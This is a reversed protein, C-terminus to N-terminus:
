AAVERAGGAVVDIIKDAISWLPLVEHVVGAQIATAPLDHVVCSPEDQAITLGGVGAIARLGECGDSGVGTLLVGITNKGFGQAISSMTSDTRSHRLDPSDEVDEVIVSTNGGPECLILRTGSPTMLIKGPLLAQGDIPEHIPISCTQNLMDALVRTFGQRMQQIVIITGPFSSPIRPLLEALAQPGGTGAAIVVAWTPSISDSTNQIIM